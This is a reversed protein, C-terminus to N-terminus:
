EASERKKWWYEAKRFDEAAREVAATLVHTPAPLPREAAAAAVIRRLANFSAGERLATLAVEVLAWYTATHEAEHRQMEEDLASIAVDDALDPDVKCKHAILHAQGRLERAADEITYGGWYVACVVRHAEPKLHGRVLWRDIQENDAIPEHKM